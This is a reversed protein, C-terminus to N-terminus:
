EDATVRNGFLTFVEPALVLFIGGVWLFHGVLPIMPAKALFIWTAMLCVLIAAAVVRRAVVFRAGLLFLLYMVVLPNVWGSLVLTLSGLADSGLGSRIM